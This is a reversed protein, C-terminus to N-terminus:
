KRKGAERILAAAAEDCAKAAEDGGENCAVLVAFDKEPAIWAVCYWMTNSGAHTLVREGSGAWPRSTVIWGCAYKPEGGAGGGAPTHLKKFTETKLLRADGEDGRLHLAAFKAWDGITCHVIGAPGIAVPNDGRPGPDVPKGKETHGYPQNVAEKDGPAGFGASTMGLPVFLRERMLEEWSKGMVEEAMHGAIAFGANSYIYKSGPPAEPPEATVGEMLAQRAGVPTGKFAWLRGWLGGRDLNNPAGGRNTLLQELTVARFGPDMKPAWAPFVEAITTSWKLKGEEVLMACVTATMAKTDSGLHFKDQVTVLEPSAAKRVGAVGEAEVNWGRVIAAAMGPIKHKEIIPGLLGGIDRVNVEAGGAKQPEDARVGAAMAFAMCAFLLVSSLMRLAREEGYEGVGARSFHCELGDVGSVPECAM